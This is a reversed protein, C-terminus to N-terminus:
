QEKKGLRSLVVAANQSSLGKTMVQICCCGDQCNKVKGFMPLIVRELGLLYMTRWTMHVIKIVQAPLQQRSLKLFLGHVEVAGSYGGVTIIEYSKFPGEKNQLIRIM